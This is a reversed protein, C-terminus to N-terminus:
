ALAKGGTIRHLENLLEIALGPDKVPADVTPPPAPAEAYCDGAALAWALCRDDGTLERARLFLLAPGAIPMNVGYQSGWAVFDSRSNGTDPDVCNVFRRAKLDHPANLCGDLYVQGRERCDAALRTATADGTTELLPAAELLALGLPLTQGLHLWRHKDEGQTETRSEGKLMGSPHRKTWWYDLFERIQVLFDPRRTRHFAFALDFIYFGGHRPFDCSRPHRVTRGNADIHAHRIYERRGPEGVCWHWDLGEAFREVCTANMAWLREWLWLPAQRLHDHIPSAPRNDREINDYSNGVRDDALHWYAHEGWPFLGSATDTCHTAFRHLYRETADHWDPRGLAAGLGRMAALLPVDHMLNSGLPARDGDRQGAIHPPMTRLLQGTRRDLLSPFLGEHRVAITGLLDLSASVTQLPTNM